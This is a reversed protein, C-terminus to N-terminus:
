IGGLLGLVLLEREKTERRPARQIRRPSCTNPRIPLRYFGSHTARCHTIIWMSYSSNSRRCQKSALSKAYDACKLLCYANHQRILLEHDVKARFSGFMPGMLSLLHLHLPETLREWFLRNWIRRKSLKKLLFAAARRRGSEDMM